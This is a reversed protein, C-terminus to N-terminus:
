ESEGCIGAVRQRATLGAAGPRARAPRSSGPCAPGPHVHGGPVRRQLEVVLDLELLTGASYGATTHSVFREGSAPGGLVQGSFAM